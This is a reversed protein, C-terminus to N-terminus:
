DSRAAVSVRMLAGQHWRWKFSSPTSVRSIPQYWDAQEITSKGAGHVGAIATIRGRGCPRLDKALEDTAEAIRQAIDAPLKKLARDVAATIEIKYAM